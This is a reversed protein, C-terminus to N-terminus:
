IMAWSTAATRLEGGAFYVGGWLGVGEAKLAKDVLGRAIAPSPGDLRTVLLVGNTPNLLAANTTGYFPNTLPGAWPLNLESVPLCALQSDVSAENRRLEAPLQEAAPEVLKED